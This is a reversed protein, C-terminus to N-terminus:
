VEGNMPLFNSPYSNGHRAFFIDEYLSTMTSATTEQGQHYENDKQSVLLNVTLM